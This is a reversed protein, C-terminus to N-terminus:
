PEFTMELDSFNSLPGGFKLECEEPAPLPDDGERACILVRYQAHYEDITLDFESEALPGIRCEAGGAVVQLRWDEALEMRVDYRDVMEVYARGGPGGLSTYPSDAPEEVCKGYEDFSVPAEMLEESLNDENATEVSLLQGFGIMEEEHDRVVVASLYVPSAVLEDDGPEDNNEDDGDNGDNEDSEDSEDATAPEGEATLQEIVVLHHTEPETTGVDSWPEENQNQQPGADTAGNSNQSQNGNGPPTLVCRGHIGCRADEDDLIDQCEPDNECQVGGNEAATSDLCAQIPDVEGQRQYVECYTGDTCEDDRTCAATCRDDICYDDGGCDSDYGCDFGAADDQACGTVLVLACILALSPIVFIKYPIRM